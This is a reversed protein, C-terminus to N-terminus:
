GSRFLWYKLRMLRHLLKLSRLIKRVHILKPAREKKYAILEEVIGVRLPHGGFYGRRGIELVREKMATTDLPSGHWEKFHIECMLSLLINSHDIESLLHAKRHNLITREIDHLVTIFVCDLYIEKWSLASAPV